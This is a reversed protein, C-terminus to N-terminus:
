RIGASVAQTKVASEAVQSEAQAIGVNQLIRVEVRRNQKRGTSTSNDAVPKAEGFGFPRVIRRLPVDHNEALYDVVAEARRESLRRNYSSDGDASAFGAVEILYADQNAFHEVLSDLRNKAEQNLDSSNFNFPVVTADLERYQDLNSIRQNAFTAHQQAEGATSLAQDATTQAQSAENRALRFADNLEDVQSSLRGTKENLEGTNKRMEAQTADLQQQTENLQAEVPSVRSTITQAVKLEDQTFRIKDALVAGSTDGHGEVRVNLGLLFDEPGYKEASRFPNSKKEQIKTGPGWTVNVERGEFTRMRFQDTNKQVIVGELSVEQGLPVNSVNEGLVPALFLATLALLISRYKM